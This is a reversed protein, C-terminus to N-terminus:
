YSVRYSWVSRKEFRLNCPTTTHDNWGFWSRSGGNVQEKVIFEGQFMERNMHLRPDYRSNSPPPVHSMGGNHLSHVPVICSSTTTEIRMM